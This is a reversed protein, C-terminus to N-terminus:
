KKKALSRVSEDETEEKSDEVVEEAKSSTTTARHLGIRVNDRAHRILFCLVEVM